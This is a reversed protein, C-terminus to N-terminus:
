GNKTNDDSPGESKALFAAVDVKWTSNPGLPQSAPVKGARVAHYLAKKSCGLLEAAESVTATDTV